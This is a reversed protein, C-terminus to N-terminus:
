RLLLDEVLQLLVIRAVLTEQNEIKSKQQSYPRLAMARGYRLSRSRIHKVYATPFYNPEWDFWDALAMHDTAAWFESKMIKPHLFLSTDVGDPSRMQAYRQASEREIEALRAGVSAFWKDDMVM